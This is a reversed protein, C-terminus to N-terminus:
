IGDNFPVWAGNLYKYIKGKNTLAFPTEGSFAINVIIEKEKKEKEKKM